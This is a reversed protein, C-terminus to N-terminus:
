ERIQIMQRELFGTLATPFLQAITEFDYNQGEGEPGRVRVFRQGDSETIAEIHFDLDPPCSVLPPVRYWNKDIDATDWRPRSLFGNPHLFIRNSAILRWFVDDKAKEPRRASPSAAPRGRRPSVQPPKKQRNFEDLKAQCNELNEEPEWTCEDFGLWKVHYEVGKATRRSALIKEVEYEEQSSEWASMEIHIYIMSLREDTDYEVFLSPIVM